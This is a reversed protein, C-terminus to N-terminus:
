ENIHEEEACLKKIVKAPNGGVVTWPEVDRTVVSGAGVVAGEGITVGKLIKCGTGIWAKDCIRIPKSKVDNWNKNKVFNGTALYDRYEQETDYKRKEWDVAHSNHDYFLCDWAITVDNGINIENISIFTSGGIHVRDGISIHGSDKEFIFKGDIVCHSGVKLFVSREKPQRLEVDFGRGYVSDTALDVYSRIAKRKMKRKYSRYWDLIIM